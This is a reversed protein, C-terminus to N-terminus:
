RPYEEPEDWSEAWFDEEARAIEGMDLADPGLEFDYTFQGSDPVVGSVHVHQPFAHEASLGQVQATLAFM